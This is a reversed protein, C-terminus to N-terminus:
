WHMATYGDMDKEECDAGNDLLYATITSNNHYAAWMLPTMGADDTANIDLSSYQTTHTYCLVCSTRRWSGWVYDPLSNSTRPISIQVVLVHSLVGVYM